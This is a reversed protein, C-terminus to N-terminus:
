LKKKSRWFNQIIISSRLAGPYLLVLEVGAMFASLGGVITGAVHFLPSTATKIDNNSYGFMTAGGFAAVLQSLHTHTVLKLVGNTGGTHLYAAVDNGRRSVGFILDDDPQELM